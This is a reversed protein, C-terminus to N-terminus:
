YVVQCSLHWDCDTEMAAMHNQTSMQTLSSITILNKDVIHDIEYMYQYM